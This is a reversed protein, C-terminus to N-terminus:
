CQDSVAQYAYKPNKLLLASGDLAVYMWKHLDLTISDALDIGDLTSKMESCMYSLAGYAGDVHFWAGYRKCIEAIDRLPDVSGIITSGATAAVLVATVGNKEDQAMQRALDECDMRRNADVKIRRINDTGLGSMIVARELSFHGTETIYVAFTKDGSIKGFGKTKLEAGIIRHLAVQLATFNAISGGSLM